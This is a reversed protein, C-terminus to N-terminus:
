ALPAATRSREHLRMVLWRGAYCVIGAGIVVLGLARPTGDTLAGIALGSLAGAGFQISMFLAAAAGASFPYRHMLDTTCNAGLVSVTSLVFFLAIVLMPLGGIESLCFFGAALAAIFQITAVISIMRVIGVRGVLRTNIFSFLMLGVINLGFLLGYKQPALGYYEIFLFPTGAVYAMMAAFAGGGCLLHGFTVPDTLLRRYAVFSTRLASPARRAAPWTEDIKYYATVACTAGFLALACFIARWGGFRLLQGGILPALLPGCSTVISLTSVLKAADSPGHSDRAIARALVSAAGAGLAQIFRLVILVGISPAFICGITAATYLLLGGLLVPRRGLGDSLPGYFLMGAGFGAVFTILTAQAMADTAHLALALSPLSPLYMDISLPGCAALAGLLLILRINFRKAPVPTSDFAM